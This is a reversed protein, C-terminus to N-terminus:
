LAYQYDEETFVYTFDNFVGHKEETSVKKYSKYNVINRTSTYLYSKPAQILPSDIYHVVKYQHDFTIIISDANRFYNPTFGSTNKGRSSGDAIKIEQGAGLLITDGPLIMGSSYGELRITHLTPNKIIAKYHTSEEQKICSILLGCIIILIITKM